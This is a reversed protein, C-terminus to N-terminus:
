KFESGSCRKVIIVPIFSVPESALNLTSSSDTTTTTSCSSHTIRANPTIHVLESQLNTDVKIDVNNRKKWMMETGGRAYSMHELLMKRSM